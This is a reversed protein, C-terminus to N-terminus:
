VSAGSSSFGRRSSGLRTRQAPAPLGRDRGREGATDESQRGACPCSASGSGGARSGPQQGAPPSVRGLARTRRTLRHNVGKWCFRKCLQCLLVRTKLASKLIALVRSKQHCNSPCVSTVAASLWPSRETPCGPSVAHPSHCLPRVPAPPPPVPSVAYPSSPPLPGHCLPRPVPAAACPISPSM